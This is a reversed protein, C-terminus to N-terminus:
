FIPNLETSSLSVTPGENCIVLTARSVRDGPMGEFGTIGRNGTLGPMGKIGPLGQAGPDGQYGKKTSPDGPLGHSGEYGPVGPLGKIGTVSLCSTVFHPLVSSTLLIVSIPNHSRVERGPSVKIEQM